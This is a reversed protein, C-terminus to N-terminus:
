TKLHGGDLVKYKGAMTDWTVFVTNKNVWKKDLVFSIDTIYKDDLAENIKFKGISCTHWMDQKYPEKMWRYARDEPVWKVPHSSFTMWLACHKKDRSVIRFGGNIPFIESKVGFTKYDGSCGWSGTQAVTSFLEFALQTGLNHMFYKAIAEIDSAFPSGLVVFNANSSFNNEEFFRAFRKKVAVTGKGSAQLELANKYAGNIIAFSSVCFVTLFLLYQALSKQKDRLLFELGFAVVAILVPFVLNIYRAHPFVLVGPWAFCLAGFMFFALLNKHKKYSMFIFIMFFLFLGLVFLKSAFSDTSLFFINNLWAFFSNSVSQLKLTITELWSPSSLTKQVLVKPALVKQAVAHSASTQAGQSLVKIALVGEQASQLQPLFKKLWPFRIFLNNYTRDLTGFGYAWIKLLVYIGMTAFFIWTKQLAIKGLAWIKAFISKTAYQADYSFVCAGFFMWLPFFIVSERSLLALLFMFGSLFYYTYKKFLSNRALFYYRYFLISLLLFLTMLTTHTAAIWPLWTSVQPYFAFLLGALFALTLSMWLSLIYFLLVATLAHLAVHFLYYARIDLKFFYYIVSFFINKIPRMFGSIFNAKSRSYNAPVTFDREDASFVRPIDSPKKILGYIIQGLDDERFWNEKVCFGFLTFAVAFLVISLFLKQSREKKFCVIM